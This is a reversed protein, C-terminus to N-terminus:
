SWTRHKEAVWERGDYDEIQWKVDAPIKVIKLGAFNGNAATGMERVIDVLVPDDREITHSNWYVNNVMIRQGNQITSARDERDALEYDTGTRHLYSLEAARSLGFGGYTESIVVYRVGKLHEILKDHNLNTEGDLGIDLYQAAMDCMCSFCTPCFNVPLMGFNGDIGGEDETYDCSCVSCTYTEIEQGAM